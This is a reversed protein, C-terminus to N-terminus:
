YATIKDKIQSFVKASVVKKDLLDNTSGYPRNNIIKEATVPGVGPLSDLSEASAMNINIEGGGGGGMGLVQSSPQYNAEDTKPIYIKAGDTLKIALNINKAVYERNADASLGGSAVLADQIISNLALKYVGPRVVAGEVDITILSASKPALDEHTFKIENNKSASGLLSILGYAFFILGVLALAIPLRYQKLALKIRESLLELDM